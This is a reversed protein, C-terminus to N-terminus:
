DFDEWLPKDSTLLVDGNDLAILKVGKEFDHYYNEGDEAHQYRIQHVNDGIVGVVRGDNMVRVRMGPNDYVVLSPNRRRKGKPVMMQLHELALYINEQVSALVRLDERSANKAVVGLQDLAENLFRKIDYTSM